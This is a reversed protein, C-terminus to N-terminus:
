RIYTVNVMIMKKTMQIMIYTKTNYKEVLSQLLTKSFIKFTEIISIQILLLLASLTSVLMFTTFSQLQNSRRHQFFDFTQLLQPCYDCSKLM